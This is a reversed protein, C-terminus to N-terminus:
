EKRQQKFKQESFWDYLLWLVLSYVQSYQMKYLSPKQPPRDINCKRYVNTSQYEQFVVSCWIHPAPFAQNQPPPYSFLLPIIVALLDKDPIKLECLNLVWYLIFVPLAKTANMSIARMKKKKIDKWNLTRSDPTFTLSYGM